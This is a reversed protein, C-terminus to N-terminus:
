SAREQGTGEWAYASMSPMEKVTSKFLLLSCPPPFIM